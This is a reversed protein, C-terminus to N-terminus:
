PRVSWFGAGSSEPATVYNYSLWARGKEAWNTGWSNQIRFCLKDDDYGIILIEHWGLNQGEFGAICNGTGLYFNEYVPVNVIVPHGLYLEQKVAEIGQISHYSSIRFWREFSRAWLGPEDNVRRTDYTWLKEPAVGNNYAVKLADRPYCGVDSPFLEGLKRADYYVQLESGNYEIGRKRQELEYAAILAFAVCSGLSGQNRV